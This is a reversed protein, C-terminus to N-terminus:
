CSLNRSPGFRFRSNGQHVMQTDVTVKLLAADPQGTFADCRKRNLSFLPSLICFDIGPKDTQISNANGNANPPM